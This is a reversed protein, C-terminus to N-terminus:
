GSATAARAGHHLARLDLVPHLDELVDDVGLAADQPPLDLDEVLVVLADRLLPAGRDLLEDAAVLDDGQRAAVLARDAQGLDFDRM